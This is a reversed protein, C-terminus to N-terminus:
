FLPNFKISIISDNSPKCYDNFSFMPDMLTDLKRKIEKFQEDIWQERISPNKLNEYIEFLESENSFYFKRDSFLIQTTDCESYVIVPCRASLCDYVTKNIYKNTPNGKGVFIYALHSNLLKFFEDGYVGQDYLKVDERDIMLDDAGPGYIDTPITHTNERFIKPLAKLRNKAVSGQLYGAFILRDITAKKELSSHKEYHNWVNFLIADSVYLTNKSIREPTSMRLGENIDHHAIDPVWDCIQRSGNAVFYTLDYNIYQNGMADIEKQNSKVFKETSPTIHSLRDDMMRKYDIYPYESDPTRVFLPIKLENTCHASIRYNKICAKDITGGFFTNRTM